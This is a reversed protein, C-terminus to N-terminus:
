DSQQALYWSLRGKAAKRTLSIHVHDRHRLTISCGKRRKCGSSLYPRKRFGDYSRYIRDNWIIYMVGMRRALAHPNGLDDPAFLEDLFKKATRRNKRKRADLMWDIARAEKHESTSSGACSRTIPGLRGGRQVLWDALLLVGPQPKKRCRTQPQYGAYSELPVPFAATPAPVRQPRPDKPAASATLPSLTGLLLLTTLLLGLVSRPAHM